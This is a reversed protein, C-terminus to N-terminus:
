GAGAALTLVYVTKVGASLLLRSCEDVTSGTTYIDDILLVSKENLERAKEHLEYAAKVNLQRERADLKNMPAKYTKRVLVQNNYVVGLGKAVVKAMLESQNYGRKRQNKEHSPVATILDVCIDELLIRDLLIKGLKEGMYAKGNFKYRHVMEKEKQSYQLCTFGREFFHDNEKCDRCLEISEPNLKRHMRRKETETLVKGCKYCTMENAWHLSEMCQDCLAYPRTKDILNDCCICYINSPFIFELCQKGINKMSFLNINMNKVRM